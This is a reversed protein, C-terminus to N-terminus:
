WARSHSGGKSASPRTPGRHYLGGMGLQHDTRHDGPYLRNWQRDRARSWPYRKGRGWHGDRWHELHGSTVAYGYPDTTSSNDVVLLLLPGFVTDPAIGAGPCHLAVCCKGKPLLPWRSRPRSRRVAQFIVSTAFSLAPCITVPSITSRFEILWVFQPYRMM